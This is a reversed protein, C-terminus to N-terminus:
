NCSSPSNEKVYEWMSYHYDLGNKVSLQGRRWKFCFTSAMKKNKGCLVNGVWSRQILLRVGLISFLPNLPLLCSHFLKHTKRLIDNDVLKVQNEIVVWSDFGEFGSIECVTSRLARRIRRPFCKRCFLTFALMACKVFTVSVHSSEIM